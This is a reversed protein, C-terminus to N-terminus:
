RVRSALMVAAVKRRDEKRDSAIRMLGYLLLMFGAYSALGIM